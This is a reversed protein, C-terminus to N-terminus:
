ASGTPTNSRPSGNTTNRSSRDQQERLLAQLAAQQEPSLKFVLSVGNIRMNGDVQGADFEAKALPHASGHVIVRQNGDVAQLIRAKPGVQALSALSAATLLVFVAAIKPFRFM